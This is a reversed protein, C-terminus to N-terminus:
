NKFETIYSKLIKEVKNKAADGNYIHTMDNRAWLMSLWVNEDLNDYVAYAAKMIKRPSGTNAISMGKYRLLEKLVKWGM